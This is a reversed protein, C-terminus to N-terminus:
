RAREEMIWQVAALIDEAIYVPAVPGDLNDLGYGTKVLIGKVGVAAAAEMDRATDGIMYSKGLDVNFERAARFLMGAAPKRCSCVKRYPLRGEEPHHPCYYFGDIVAGTDKLTENIRRHVEDVLTEEYLGRAVGSQNTVVITKFGMQNILRIAQPANPLLKLKDLRDLYGVEENITGDRDLFVAPYRLTVGM